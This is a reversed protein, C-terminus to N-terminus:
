SWDLPSLSLLSMWPIRSTRFQVIEPVVVRAICPINEVLNASGAHVNKKIRQSSQVCRSVSDDWLTKPLKRQVLLAWQEVLNEINKRSTMVGDSMSVFGPFRQRQDHLPSIQQFHVIWRNTWVAHPFLCQSWLTQIVVHLQSVLLFSEHERVRSSSRSDGADVLEELRNAVFYRRCGM